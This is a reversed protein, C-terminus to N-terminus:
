LVKVKVTATGPNVVASGGYSVTLTHTGKTLTLRLTARGPRGLALDNVKLKKTGELVTVDGTPMPANSVSVVVGLVATGRGAETTVTLTSTARVTDTPVSTKSVTTLPKKVGTVRFTLQRGLDANQVKYSTSGSGVVDEGRLWEYTLEVGSPGWTGPDGTLHRGRKADGSVTPTSSQVSNPPDPTGPEGAKVPGTPASSATRSTLGSKSGTISITMAHGVDSTMLTYSTKTAGSIIVGDRLWQYKLTV